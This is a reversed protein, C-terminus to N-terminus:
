AAEEPEPTPLDQLPAPHVGAFFRFRRGGPATEDHYRSVLRAVEASLEEAFAHQARANAFRVEAQLTLTPLRKGAREAGDRLTAIEGIARSAVAVLYASSARDAVREPDAGLPGLASPSIVYSRAVTRMVRETCNRRRREAVVEVLGDEELQRVHYNLQQRPIGLRRSLGTASDPRDLEALIRQRLPHLATAATAADEIVHLAAPGM